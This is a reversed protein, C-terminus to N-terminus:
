NKNGKELLLAPNRTIGNSELTFPLSFVAVSANVLGVFWHIVVSGPDFEKTTLHFISFQIEKKEKKFLPLKKKGEGSETYM